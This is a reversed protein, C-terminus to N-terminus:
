IYYMANSSEERERHRNVLDELTTSELVQVVARTIDGWVDRTACNDARSCVKPDNVCRVAAIPGELVQIVESLRIQQAPKTLSVGGHAGRVSRLLGAKALPSILQQLYQLPIAQRRAIDRILVARDNPQLAIDLLARVGYRGRTSLRM